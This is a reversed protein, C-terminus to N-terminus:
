VEEQLPTRQAETRLAQLGKWVWTYWRPWLQGWHLYGVAGQCYGRTDPRKADEIAGVLAAAVDEPNVVPRKIAYTGELRWAAPEVLWRPDPVLEVGGAWGVAVVPVGCAQSEVIPYGFGEGLGPALTVTSACYRAALQEDTLEHTSVCVLPRPWGFDVTLQGIDWANTLKDTHLWIAVPVGRGRLLSGAAFLLSLDKRPQNTAVCGIVVADPSGGQLAQRWQAFGEDAAELPVGPRFVPELGHPLYPVPRASGRALTRKLVEAGYKTYALVRDCAKVAEAAPGSIAGRVNESDIPFYGWFHCPPLAEAKEGELRRRTLDYCRSPDMIMLVVPDVQPGPRGERQQAIQQLIVRLAARGQDWQEPQFGFFDWGQWHWGDPPDVGLQLLQIGLEEEAGKLRVALDRAIRALGSPLRPGDGYVLVPIPDM